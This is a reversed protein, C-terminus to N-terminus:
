GDVPEGGLLALYVDDLTPRIVRVGTCGGDVLTKLAARLGAESAASIRATGDAASDVSTIEPLDKIRALLEVSADDVDIETPVSSWRALAAPSATTLISGKNILTVRDCVAEAEALDHTTIFITTGKARLDALLVRFDRRAVPDVGITPEDLFVVRPDHLLARALHLRQRMGRSYTNIRSDARNLLDFQALLEDCRELSRTKSMGYMAAWFRLSQRATLWPHLGGGGLSVGILRRVAAAERVVDHGLISAAGATPLLVTSLIKVLTTKGAGNPGLLGHIEGPQVTLSVSDLAIRPTRTKRHRGPEEYLRGLRRIEVAPPSSGLIDSQAM